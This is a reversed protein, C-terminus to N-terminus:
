EDGRPQLQDTRLLEGATFTAADLAKAGVPGLPGIVTRGSVFRVAVLESPQIGPVDLLDSSHSSALVQRRDSADRLADMLVGVAAPHLAVEPEEIGVVGTGSFLATLVGAARLTGDSMSSSDFEHLRDDSAFIQQFRLTDYSDVSRGFVGHLDPVILRLYDDVREKAAPDEHELLGLVHAINSADRRLERVDVSRQLAAMAKPSPSFIRVRRLGQAVSSGFRERLSNLELALRPSEWEVPAFVERTATATSALGEDTVVIDGNEVRGVTFDYAGSEGDVTFEVAIGFFTAGVHTLGGFGGRDQIANELNTNLADAVFQIADLFNSKGAGNPGVLLTLPGLEVDCSEISKYNRLRVRTIDFRPAM